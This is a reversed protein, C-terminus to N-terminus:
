QVICKGGCCAAQEEEKEKKQEVKGATENEEEKETELSAFGKATKSTDGSRSHDSGPGEVISGAAPRGRTSQELQPNAADVRDRLVFAEAELTTVDSRVDLAPFDTDIEGDEEAVHVRYSWPDDLLGVPFEGGNDDRAAALAQKVLQHATCHACVQLDVMAGEEHPLYVTYRHTAMSASRPFNSDDLNSRALQLQQALHSSPRDIPSTVAIVSTKEFQLGVGVVDRAEQDRGRRSQSRSTSPSTRSRPTPSNSGRQAPPPIVFSGDRLGIAGADPVSEGSNLMKLVRQQRAITAEDAAM